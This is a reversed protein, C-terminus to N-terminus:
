AVKEHKGARYTSGDVAFATYCGPREMTVQFSTVLTGPLMLVVYDSIGNQYSTATWICFYTRRSFIVAESYMVDRILEKWAGFTARRM